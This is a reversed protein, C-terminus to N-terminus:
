KGFVREFNRYMIDNYIAKTIKRAKLANQMLPIHVPAKKKVFFCDTGFFIRKSFANMFRFGVEPDRSLANAGSGASIDAYLNPYKKMLTWLRGQKKIPGKVYGEREKQTLRGDIENWFSPAHGIFITKPYEKLVEELGPVGLKDILGYLGGKRSALHLLVPLGEEGAHHFLNKCLPDTIPMNACVEGIGRCGLDKFTRMLPGFDADRHNLLSRPDINCFPILRDPHKQCAAIVEQNGAVGFFDLNEPNSLPLIVSRDIGWKDMDKLLHKATFPGHGGSGNLRTFEPFKGFTIHQHIDIIM